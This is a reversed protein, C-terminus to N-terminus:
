TGNGEGGMPGDTEWGTGGGELSPTGGAATGRNATAPRHPSANKEDAANGNARRKSQWKDRDFCSPTQTGGNSSTLVARQTSNRM